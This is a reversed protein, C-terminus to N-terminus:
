GNSLRVLLINVAFIQTKCLKNLTQGLSFFIFSMFCNIALPGVSAAMIKGLYTIIDCIEEFQALKKKYKNRIFDTSRPNYAKFLFLIVSNTMQSVFRIIEYVLSEFVLEVPCYDRAGNKPVCIILNSM